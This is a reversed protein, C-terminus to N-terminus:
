PVMPIGSVVFFAMMAMEEIIKNPQTRNEQNTTGLSRIRRRRIDPRRINRGRM